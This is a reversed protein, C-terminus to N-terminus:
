RGGRAAQRGTPGPLLRPATWGPPAYHRSPGIVAPPLAVTPSARVAVPASCTRSTTSRRLRKSMATRSARLGASCANRSKRWRRVRRSGRSTGPSRVVSTAWEQRRTRGTKSAHETDHARERAPRLPQTPDHLGSACSAGASAVGRGPDKRSRRPGAGRPPAQRGRAARCRAAARKYLWHVDAEWTFGIGGHAQIASATVERGGNAAAAAALAAAEALREPDADAAWAAYYATSRASETQLLMQACRHSVAQFSGVPVGFQKRDKVYDLTM